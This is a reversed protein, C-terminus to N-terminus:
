AAGMKEVAFEVQREKFRVAIDAPVRVGDRDLLVTDIQGDVRSEHDEVVLRIGQEAAQKPLQADLRFARVHGEAQRVQGRAVLPVAAAQALDEALAPVQQARSEPTEHELDVAEILFRDFRHVIRAELAHGEALIGDGSTVTLVEEVKVDNGHAAGHPGRWGIEHQLERRPRQHVEPEVVAEEAHLRAVRPPGDHIARPLVHPFEDRRKLIADAEVRRHRADLAVGGTHRDM